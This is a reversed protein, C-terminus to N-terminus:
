LYEKEVTIVQEMPQQSSHYSYCVYRKNWGTAKNTRNTFVAMYFILNAASQIHYSIECRVKLFTGKGMPYVHRWEFVMQYIPCRRLLAADRYMKGPKLLEEGM